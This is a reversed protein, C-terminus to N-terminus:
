NKYAIKLEEIKVELLSAETLIVMAEKPNKKQLRNSEEILYIYQNILREIDLVFRTNIRHM